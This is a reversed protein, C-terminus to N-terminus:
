SVFKDALEQFCTFTGSTLNNFWSQSVGKLIALFYRYYTTDDVDQVYMQAKYVGLHEEPDTTGNYLDLTPIKVKGYRLNNIIEATFPTSFPLAAPRAATGSVKLPTKPHHEVQVM